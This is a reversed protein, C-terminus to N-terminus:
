YVWMYSKSQARKGPEHLVQIETEDANLYGYLLLMRHLTDFLPKLWTHVAKVLGNSMTQRSLDFKVRKWNQEQRYLPVGMVYKMIMIYAIISASAYSGPIVAPEKPTKEILAQDSEKECERCLYNHYIDEHVFVKEPTVELTRRIKVRIEVMETGCVPCKLDDGTLVHDDKIIEAGEPVVDLVSGSNRKRTHPAVAIEKKWGRTSFCFDTEM